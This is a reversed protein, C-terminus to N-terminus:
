PSGRERYDLRVNFERTRWVAHTPPRPFPQAMALTDLALRDIRDDGSSGSVIAERLKGQRDLVFRVTAVGSLRRGPSRKHREVWAIVQAEYIDDLPAAKAGRTPAGGGETLGARSDIEGDGRRQMIESSVTADLRSLDGSLTALPSVPVTLTEVREMLPTPRRVKPPEMTPTSATPPIAKSEATSQEPANSGDFRPSPALVLNVVPAGGVAEFKEAPMSALVAILGTQLTAVFCFIVTRSRASLTTGSM